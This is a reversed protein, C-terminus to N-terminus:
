TLPLQFSGHLIQRATLVWRIHVCRELKLGMAGFVARKCCLQMKRMGWLVSACQHRHANTTVM